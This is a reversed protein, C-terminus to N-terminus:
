VHFSSLKKGKILIQSSEIIQIALLWESFLIIDVWVGEQHKQKVQVKNVIEYTISTAYKHFHYSMNHFTIATAYINVSYFQSTYPNIEIYYDTHDIIHLHYFIVQLILLYNIM